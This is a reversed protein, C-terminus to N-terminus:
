LIELKDKDDGLFNQIKEIDSSDDVEVHVVAGGIEDDFVCSISLDVNYFTFLMEELDRRYEKQEMSEKHFDFKREFSIVLTKNNIAAPKGEILFAYLFIKERKILNLFKEWSGKVQEFSIGSHNEYKVEVAPEEVIENSSEERVQNQSEINSQVPSQNSTQPVTQIKKDETTQVSTEIKTSSEVRRQPKSILGMEIKRELNEIRVKLAEISDDYTPRLIKVLSMELLFRPNSSYKSDVELKALEDIIWLVHDMSFKEGYEVYKRISEDSEDIINEPTESIKAIMINRFHKLFAKIFQNVDKGAAVIDGIMTMVGQFDELLIKETMDFLINDRAIGLINLVKDYTITNEGYSICQDLISLADRAAGESMRSIMKVSREDIDITVEEAVKVLLDNMDEFSIRKFDFRQCRSLITAPIKHPETTALIFCAYEPPEELTKLLANFAGQSLMHVEDIIYVKYKCKTPPYKINERLERIDDVGNNSAADIEVVDMLSEDIIGRCTDCENCPNNDVIDQCNIARSFIRAVSTKGTGRTGTFLYAHAINNLNIQNKLTETVHSQGVVDDFVTPRCKRYLAQYSM